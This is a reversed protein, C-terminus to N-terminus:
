EQTPYYKVEEEVTCDSYLSEIESQRKLRVSQLHQEVSEKYASLAKALYARAEDIPSPPTKFTHKFQREMHSIYYVDTNPDYPVENAVPDMPNPALLLSSLDM